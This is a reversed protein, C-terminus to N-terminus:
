YIRSYFDKGFPVVAIILYYKKYNNCYEIIIM